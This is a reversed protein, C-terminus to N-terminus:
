VILTGKEQMVLPDFTAFDAQKILVTEVVQPRGEGEKAHCAIVNILEEDFGLKGALVAGSIPHRMCKGNRTKVWKGGADRGIELLKGLDHLLAGAALRDFDIAYPLTRYCQQQARGLALAGDTVAQTHEVFSIGHCDTLLTFPMAQLEDVSDKNGLRCAEVWAGVTRQRLDPNGIQSLQRVFLKEIDERTVM